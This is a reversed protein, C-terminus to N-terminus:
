MGDQRLAKEADGKVTYTKITQKNRRAGLYAAQPGSYMNGEEDHSPVNAWGRPTRVSMMSQASGRDMAELRRIENSKSRIVESLHRLRQAADSTLYGRSRMSSTRIRQMEASHQNISGELSRRLPENTTSQNFRREDLIRQQELRNDAAPTQEGARARQMDKSLGAVRRNAAESQKRSLGRMRGKSTPDTPTTASEYLQMGIEAAALPPALKGAIKSAGKLVKGVKSTGKPAQPTKGSRMARQEDMNAIRRRRLEPSFKREVEALEKRLERIRYRSELARDALRKRVHEPLRGKPSENAKVMFQEQRIQRVIDDIRKELEAYDVIGDQAM